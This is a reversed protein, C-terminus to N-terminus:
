SATRPVSTKRGYTFYFVLGIAMWGLFVGGLSRKLAHGSDAEALLSAVPKKTFLSM